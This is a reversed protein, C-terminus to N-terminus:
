LAPIKKDFSFFFHNFNFLIQNKIIILLLNKKKIKIFINKIFPNQFFPEQCAHFDHRDTMELPLLFLTM